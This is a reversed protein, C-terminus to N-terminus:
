TSLNLILGCAKRQVEVVDLHRKMASFILAPRGQSVIFTKNENCNNGMNWLGCFAKM